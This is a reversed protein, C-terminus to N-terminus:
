DVKEEAIDLLKSRLFGVSGALWEEEMRVTEEISGTFPPWHEVIISIGNRGCRRLEALV